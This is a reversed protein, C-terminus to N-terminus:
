FFPKLLETVTILFAVQEAAEVFHFLTHQASTLLLVPHTLKLARILILGHLVLEGLLIFVLYSLEVEFGFRLLVQSRSKVVGMVTIHFGVVWVFVELKNRGFPLTQLVLEAPDELSLIEVYVAKGAVGLLYL